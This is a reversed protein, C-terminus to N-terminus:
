SKQNEKDGVLRLRATDATEGRSMSKSIKEVVDSSEKVKQELQKLLQAEGRLMKHCVDIKETPLDVLCRVEGNQIAGASMADCSSTADKKLQTVKEDWKNCTSEYRQLDKFYTAEADTIHPHLSRSATLVASSREALKTANAELEKVRKVNSEHKQKFEEMLETLRELEAAQHDHMEKLLDRRSNLIKSMEEIPTVVNVECSHQTELFISLIEPRTDKPLTGGGVIKGMKSLGNSVKGVLPQLLEHLPKVRQLVELAANDGDSAALQESKAKMLEYSEHLYQTATINVVEVTGSSLRALLIHGLHVDRSVGAGLIVTNNAAELASWVKTRVSPLEKNNNGDMQSLMRQATVAIANTSITAIRSKSSVHVMIADLPDVVIACNRIVSTATETRSEQAGEQDDKILAREVYAGTGRLLEDILQCDGDSEFEFRPLVVSGEGPIIGFDVHLTRGQSRAVVFGDIIGAGAVGGFPEICVCSSTNADSQTPMVLPGQLRPQWALAESIGNVSSSSSSYSSRPHVISASVYYSGQISTGEPIGFADLLYRKAAKCQRTRAEVQEQETSAVPSPPLSEVFSMSADIETDLHTIADVVMSRPVVTGDFIIPSATYVAGDSCLVLISMAAFARSAGSTSTSTEQSLFCFDTVTKDTFSSVENKRGRLSSSNFAENEADLTDEMGRVLDEHDFRLPTTVCGESTANYRKDMMDNNSGRVGRSSGGGSRNGGGLLSEPLGHYLLMVHGISDEEGGERMFLAMSGCRHFMSNMSPAPRIRRITSGRPAMLLEKEFPEIIQIIEGQITTTVVTENGENNADEEEENRTYGVSLLFASSCTYLCMWPLTVLERGVQGNSHQKMRRNKTTVDGSGSSGNNDGEVCILGIVPDISIAESVTTPLVTKIQVATNNTNTTTNRPSSVVDGGGGSSSSLFPAFESVIVHSGISSDYLYSHFSRGDPSLCTNELSANTPPAANNNYNTNSNNNNNIPVIATSSTSSSKPQSSATAPAVNKNGFAFGGTNNKNSSTTTGGIKDDDSADFKAFLNSGGGSATSAFPSKSSTSSSTNNGGGFSFGGGGGGGSAAVAKNANDSSAATSLGSTFSLAKSASKSSSSTGGFSSSAFGSFPLSTTKHKTDSSTAASSSSSSKGASPLATMFSSGFM